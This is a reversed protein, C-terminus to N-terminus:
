GILAAPMLDDPVTDPVVAGDAVAMRDSVERLVFWLPMGLAGTIAELLESSAEKQGREVESLYGLSVQAQSSVERLTRGQQQRVSRLVDGIERRLLPKEAPASLPLARTEDKSTLTRMRFDVAPRTSAPRTTRVSMNRSPTRNMMGM